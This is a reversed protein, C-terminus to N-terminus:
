QISEQKDRDRHGNHPFRGGRMQLHLDAILDGSKYINKGM